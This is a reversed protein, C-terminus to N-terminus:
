DKESLGQSSSSPGYLETGRDKFAQVLTEMASEFVKNFAAELHPHAFEFRLHLSIRSGDGPEPEFRWTGQLFNFPGEVLDMEIARNVRHTNRTAFTTHIPGYGVQIEAVVVDDKERHLIRSNRCWPLFEKYRDVDAVLDFMQQASYPVSESDKIEPM